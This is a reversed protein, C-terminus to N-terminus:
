YLKDFCFYIFVINVFDNVKWTDVIPVFDHVKKGAADLKVIQNPDDPKQM